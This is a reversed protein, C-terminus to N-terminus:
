LGEEVWAIGGVHRCRGWPCAHFNTPHFEFIAYHLTYTVLM